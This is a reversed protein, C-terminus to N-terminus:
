DSNRWQLGGLGDRSEDWGPEPWGGSLWAPRPPLWDGDDGPSLAKCGATLCLVLTVLIAYVASRTPDSM